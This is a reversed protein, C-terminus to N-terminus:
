RRALRALQGRPLTLIMETEKVMTRALRGRANNEDMAEAAVGDVGPRTAGMVLGGRREGDVGGDNGPCGVRAGFAAEDFGRGGAQSPGVGFGEDAFV